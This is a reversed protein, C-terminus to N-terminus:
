QAAAKRGVANGARPDRYPAAVRGVVAVPKPTPKLGATKCHDPCYPRGAVAESGCSRYDPDSPDGIPWLCERVGANPQEGTAVVAARSGARQLAQRIADAHDVVPRHAHTPLSSVIPLRDAAASDKVTPKAKPGFRQPPVDDITMGLAALAAAHAAVAPPSRKLHSLQYYDIGFLACLRPRSCGTAQVIALAAPTLARRVFVKRDGRPATVALVPDDGYSRAAAVIARACVEPSLQITM